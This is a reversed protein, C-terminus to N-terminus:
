PLVNMGICVGVACDGVSKRCQASVKWVGDKQCGSDGLGVEPPLRRGKALKMFDLREWDSSTLSACTITQHQTCKM